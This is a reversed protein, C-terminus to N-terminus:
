FIYPHQELYECDRTAVLTALETDYYQRYDGRPSVNVAPATLIVDRLKDDIPQGVSHLLRILDPRLSEMRGIQMNGLHGDVFFMYRWLWTLYGRGEDSFGALVRQTIGSGLQNDREAPLLALIRERLARRNACGLYLMNMISNKFDLRGDQSVGRFIPNRQPTTANFRFWSVYWDWPNRVFGIAPLDALEYPAESRPLHYLVPRADPLMGLLLRNIFQGGTKHLHVFIFRSTAIM